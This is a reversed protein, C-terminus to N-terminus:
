NVDEGNSNLENSLEDQDPMSEGHAQTKTEHEAQSTM